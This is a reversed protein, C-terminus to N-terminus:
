HFNKKKLCIKNIQSYLHMIYKMHPLRFSQTLAEKRFRSSINEALSCALMGWCVRVGRFSSAYAYLPCTAQVGIGMRMLYWSWPNPQRHSLSHIMQLGTPLICFGPLTISCRYTGQPFDNSTSAHLMFACPLTSTLLAIPSPTRYLRGSALSFQCLGPECPVWSLPVRPLSASTCLLFSCGLVEALPPLCDWGQKLVAMESEAPEM